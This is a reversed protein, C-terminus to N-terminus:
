RSYQLSGYYHGKCDQKIGFNTCSMSISNIQTTNWGNSKMKVWISNNQDMESSKM